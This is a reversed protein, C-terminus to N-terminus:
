TGFLHCWLLLPSPPIRRFVYPNLQLPLIFETLIITMEFHQLPLCACSHKQRSPTDESFIGHYFVPPLPCHFPSCVLLLFVVRGRDESARQRFMFHTCRGLWAGGFLPFTLMLSVTIICCCKSIYVSTRWWLLGRVLEAIGSTKSNRTM